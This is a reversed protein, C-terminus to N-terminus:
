FKYVGDECLKKIAAQVGPLDEKYTIGYWRSSVPLVSVSKKGSKILEDVVSPILFESKLPNELNDMFIDFKEHLEPFIDMDFGFMNMSVITDMPLETDIGIDFTETVSQLYGDKVDCVGRCVTGNDSLTNGLKYGAMCMTGKEALHKKVTNYADFGYFDDANVIAFPTNVEPEAALIAHGTGWPKTRGVPLHDVDQFVYAVDTMKEIRKGVAERFDKEIEKKIIFVTKSFGAKVADYVSFDLIIEGNPGIPAIQKLGGFRSGMGAAMVVLTTKNM